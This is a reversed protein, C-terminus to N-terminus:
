SQEVKAFYSNWKLFNIKFCFFIITGPVTYEWSIFWHWSLCFHRLFICPVDTFSWLSPECARPYLFSLCLSPSPLHGLSCPHKSLFCSSRFGADTSCWPCPPVRNYAWCQPCLRASWLLETAAIGALLSAKPEILSGTELCYLPSCSLFNDVRAEAHGCMPRHEPMNMHIYWVCVCCVCWICVVYVDYVYVSYVCFECVYRMCVYVYWIYMHWIFVVYVCLFFPPTLLHICTIFCVVQEWTACFQVLWANVM